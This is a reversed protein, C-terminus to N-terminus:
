NYSNDLYDRIAFAHWPNFSKTLHIQVKWRPTLDVYLPFIDYICRPISSWLFFFTM